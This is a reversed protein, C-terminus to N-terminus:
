FPVSVERNFLSPLIPTEVPAHDRREIEIEVIEERLSSADGDGDSM